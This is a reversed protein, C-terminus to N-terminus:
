GAGDGDGDRGWGGSVCGGVEGEWLGEALVLILGPTPMGGATGGEGGGEECATEEEAAAAAMAM